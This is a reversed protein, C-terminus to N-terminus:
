VPIQDPSRPFSESIGGAGLNIQSDSSPANPDFAPRAFPGYDAPVRSPATGVGGVFQNYDIPSLIPTGASASPGEKTPASASTGALDAFPDHDVPVLTAPTGTGGAFPDHDVPVLTAPTGPGDAFPDHDVPVLTPAAGPPRAFPDYDVPVLKAPTGAAGMLPDHDVPILDAM